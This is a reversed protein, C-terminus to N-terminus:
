ALDPTGSGTTDNTFIIPPFCMDGPIYDDCTVANDGHETEDYPGVWTFRWCEDDGIDQNIKKSYVRLTPNKIRKM